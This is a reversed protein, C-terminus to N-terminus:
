GREKVFSDGNWRTCRSGEPERGQSEENCSRSSIERRTREGDEAYLREEGALFLRRRSHPSDHGRSTRTRSVERGLKGWKSAIKIRSFDCTSFFSSFSSFFFFVYFRVRLIACWLRYAGSTSALLLERIRRASGKGAREAVRRPCNEIESVRVSTSNGRSTTLQSTEERPQSILSLWVLKETHLVRANVKAASNSM